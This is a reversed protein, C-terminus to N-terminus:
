KVEALYYKIENLSIDMRNVVFKRDMFFVLSDQDIPCNKDTTTMIGDWESSIGYNRLWIGGRNIRIDIEYNAAETYAPIKTSTKLGDANVEYTVNGTPNQYSITQKNKRM